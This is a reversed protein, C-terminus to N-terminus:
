LCPQHHPLNLFLLGYITQFGISKNGKSSKAQSDEGDGGGPCVGHFSNESYKQTLFLQLLTNIFLLFFM